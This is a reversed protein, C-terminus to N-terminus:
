DGEIGADALGCFPGTSVYRYAAGTTGDVVRLTYPVSTLGTGFLWFTGTISRGDLMKVFVEPLGPDGTLDPLSFYGYGDQRAIARGAIPRGTHPDTAELTLQFRGSLLSLADGTAQLPPLSAPVSAGATGASPFASTDAGGCLAHDPDNEYSRTEGTLLDTITLVYDLDTLGGYFVWDANWPSGADLMKLLIEPLSPDGTFDPLSFYGFGDTEAVAHGTALRGTRSDSAQTQVRFRGGLLCLADDSPVCPFAPGEGGLAARFM